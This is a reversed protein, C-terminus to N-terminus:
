RWIGDFYRFNNVLHFDNTNNAIHHSRSKHLKFSLSSTVCYINDVNSKINNWHIHVAFQTYELVRRFLQIRIYSGFNIGIDTTKAHISEVEEVGGEGRRFEVMKWKRDFLRMDVFCYMVCWIFHCRFRNIRISISSPKYLWHISSALSTTFPHISRLLELLVMDGHSYKYQRM